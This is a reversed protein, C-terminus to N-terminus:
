NSWYNLNLGGDLFTGRVTHPKITVTGSLPIEQWQLWEGATIGGVTVPVPWRTPRSGLDRRPLQRLARSRRRGAQRSRARPRRPM